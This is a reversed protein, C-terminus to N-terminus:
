PAAHIRAQGTQQPSLSRAGFLREHDGKEPRARAQAGGSGRPCCPGQLPPRRFPGVLQRGRVSQRPDETLRPVSHPRLGEPRLATLGVTM